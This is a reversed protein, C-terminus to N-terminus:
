INMLSTEKIVLNFLNSNANNINETSIKKNPNILYKKEILFKSVDIFTFACPIATKVPPLPRM